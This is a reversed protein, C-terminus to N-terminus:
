VRSLANESVFLNRARFPAPSELLLTARMAAHEMAFWPRRLARDPETAWDPVAYGREICLADAVAALYADNVEGARGLLPALRIPAEALAGPDPGAAFEDLFNALCAAFPEGRATAAAVDALNM